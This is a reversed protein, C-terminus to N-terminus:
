RPYMRAAKKLWGYSGFTHFLGQVVDDTSGILRTEVVTSQVLVHRPLKLPKCSMLGLRLSTKVPVKPVKRLNIAYGM